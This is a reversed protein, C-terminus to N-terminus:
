KPFDKLCCRGFPNRIKCACSGCITQTIVFAKAKGNIAEANAVGFCYCLTDDSNRTKLGPIERLQDTSIIEDLESFYAVDCDPDDCGYFRHNELERQWPKRLHHKITETGLLSYKRGNVPCLRNRTQDVAAPRPTM